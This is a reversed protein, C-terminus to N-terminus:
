GVYALRFFLLSHVGATIRALGSSADRRVTVTALYKGKYSYDGRFFLGFMTSKDFMKGENKM